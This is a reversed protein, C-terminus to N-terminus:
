CIRCETAAGDVTRQVTTAAARSVAFQSIGISSQIANLQQTTTAARQQLSEIRGSLEHGGCDAGPRLCRPDDDRAGPHPRQQNYVDLWATIVVRAELV